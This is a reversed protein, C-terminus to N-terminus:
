GHICDKVLQERSIWKFKSEVPTDNTVTIKLELHNPGDQVVRDTDPDFEDESCMQHDDSWQGHVIGADLGPHSAESFVTRHKKGHEPHSAAMERKSGEHTDLKDEQAKSIFDKNECTQYGSPKDFHSSISSPEVSNLLNKDNSLQSTLSFTSSVENAQHFDRGSELDVLDSMMFRGEKSDGIIDEHNKIDPEQEMSQKNMDLNEKDNREPQPLFQNMVNLLDKEMKMSKKKTAKKLTSTNEIKNRIDSTVGDEKSFSLASVKDQSERGRSETTNTKTNTSSVPIYEIKQDSKENNCVEHVEEQPCETSEAVDCPLFSDSSNAKVHEEAQIVTVSEEVASPDKLDVSQVKLHHENESLEEMDATQAKLHNKNGTHPVTELRKPETVELLVRKEELKGVLPELSDTSEGGISEIPYECTTESNSTTEMQQQNETQELVTTSSNSQVDESLDKMDESSHLPSPTAHDLTSTSISLPQKQKQIKPIKKLPMKASTIIGEIIAVLSLSCKVILIKIHIIVHLIDHNLIFTKEHFSVSFKM